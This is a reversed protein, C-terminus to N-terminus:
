FWGPRKTWFFFLFFSFLSFLLVGASFSGIKVGDHYFCIPPYLYFLESLSPVIISVQPSSSAPLVVAAILIMQWYIWTESTKWDYGFSPALATNRVPAAECDGLESTNNHRKPIIKCLGNHWLFLSSVCAWCQLLELMCVCICVLCVSVSARM